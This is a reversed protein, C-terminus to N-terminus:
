GTWIAQDLLLTSLGYSTTMSKGRSRGPRYPTDLCVRSAVRTLWARPSQITAREDPSLRYWRVYTEQVADEAEAVTGLMRFGLSILHRRESILEANIM